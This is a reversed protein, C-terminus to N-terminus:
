GIDSCLRLIRPGEEGLRVAARDLVLKTDADTDNHFREAVQVLLKCLTCSALAARIESLRVRKPTYNWRRIVPDILVSCCACSLITSAHDQSIRESLAGHLVQAFKNNFTFCWDQQELTNVTQM